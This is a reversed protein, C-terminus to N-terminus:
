ALLLLRQLLHYHQFICISLGAFLHHIIILFLALLYNMTAGAILVIIRKWPAQDNFREGKPEPYEEEVKPSTESVEVMTDENTQSALKKEEEKM